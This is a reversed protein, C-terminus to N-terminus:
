SSLMLQHLQYAFWICGLWSIVFRGVICGGSLDLRIIRCDVYVLCFIGVLGIVKDVSLGYSILM